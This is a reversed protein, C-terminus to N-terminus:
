RVLLSVGYGPSPLLWQPALANRQRIKKIFKGYGADVFTVTLQAGLSM